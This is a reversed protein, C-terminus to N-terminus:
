PNKNTNGLRMEFFNMKTQREPTKAANTGYVHPEMKSTKDTSMM